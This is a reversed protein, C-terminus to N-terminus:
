DDVKAIEAIQEAVHKGIRGAKVARALAGRPIFSKKEDTPPTKKSQPHSGTRKRPPRLTFAREMLSPDNKVMQKLTRDDNRDTIHGYSHAYSVGHGPEGNAKLKDVLIASSKTFSALYVPHPIAKANAKDIAMNSLGCGITLGAYAKLAHLISGNIIVPHKADSVRVTWWIDTEHGEPGYYIRKTRRTM